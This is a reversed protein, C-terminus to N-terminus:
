SLPIRRWSEYMMTVTTTSFTNTSEYSLEVESVSIPFVNKFDYKLKFGDNKKEGIYLSVKPSAYMNLFKPQYTEDDKGYIYESWIEFYQRERLDESLIISFSLNSPNERDTAISQTNRSQSKRTELNVGDSPVITRSIRVFLNEDITFGRQTIQQLVAPPFSVELLYKNPVHIGTKELTNLIETIM